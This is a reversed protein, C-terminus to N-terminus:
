LPLIVTFATGLSPVSAVSITGGHAELITKAVSLGLGGSFNADEKEPNRYYRTFLNKVTDESMGRGNDKIEIRARQDPMAEINIEIATGQPNHLVGNMIINQFARQLLRQDASIELSSIDCQLALDYGSARPDNVIDAIIRRMFDVFDFVARSLPVTGKFEDMKFSMSLDEILEGITVGKNHINRLFFLREEQEFQYDKTLLLEAYGTIYSLPTKLDHSVGTIWNKKSEEREARQLETQMLYDSLRSLDGLVEAFLRYRPKLKRKDRRTYLKEMHESLDNQGTSLRRLLSLITLIPGVFWIGWLGGGILIPLVTSGLVSAFALGEPMDDLPKISNAIGILGSIAMAISFFTFLAGLSYALIFKTRLKM